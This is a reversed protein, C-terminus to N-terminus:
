WLDGYRGPARNGSGGSGQGHGAYPDQDDEDLYEGVVEPMGEDVPGGAISRSQCLVGAEECATMTMLPSIYEKKM